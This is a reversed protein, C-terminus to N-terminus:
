VTRDSRVDSGGGNRDVVGVTSRQGQKDLYRERGNAEPEGFAEDLWPARIAPAASPLIRIRQRFGAFAASNPPIQRPLRRTRDGRM